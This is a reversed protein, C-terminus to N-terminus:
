EPYEILEKHNLNSILRTFIAKMEFCIEWNILLSDNQIIVEKGKIFIFKSGFYDKEYGNKNFIGNNHILCNRYDSIFEIFEIDKKKDEESLKDKSIFSYKKWLSNDNFLKDIIFNKPRWWIKKFIIKRKWQNKKTIYKRFDETNCLNEFILNICVPVYKAFLEKLVEILTEYKKKM